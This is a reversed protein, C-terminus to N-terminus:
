DKGPKSVYKRWPFSSLNKRHAEPLWGGASSSPRFTGSGGSRNYYPGFLGREGVREGILIALSSQNMFESMDFRVLKEQEGFLHQTFLLATETKGVGTPGLLLMSCVPRGPFRLNCFSRQLLRVMEAIPEDQGLINSRLFDRLTNLRSLLKPSVLVAISGQIGTVEAKAIGPIAARSEYRKRPFNFRQTSRQREM